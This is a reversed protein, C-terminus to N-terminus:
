YSDDSGYGDGGHGYAFGGGGYGGGGYGGGGYGYCGGGYDDCEDDSPAWGDSWEIKLGPIRSRLGNL